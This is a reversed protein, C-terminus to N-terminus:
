AKQFSSGSVETGSLQCDGLAPESPLLPKVLEASLPFLSIASTLPLDLDDSAQAEPRM